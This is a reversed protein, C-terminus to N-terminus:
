RFFLSFDDADEANALTVDMKAFEGSDFLPEVLFRRGAKHLKEMAVSMCEMTDDTSTLRCFSAYIGDVGAQRIYIIM